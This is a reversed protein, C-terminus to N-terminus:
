MRAARLGWHGTCLLAEVLVRCVKISPHFVRELSHYLVYVCGGVMLVSPVLASHACLMCASRVGQEQELGARLQM